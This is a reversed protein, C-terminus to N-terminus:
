RWHDSFSMLRKPVVAELEDPLVNCLLL